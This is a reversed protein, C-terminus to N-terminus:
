FLWGTRVDIRALTDKTSAVACNTSIIWHNLFVFEMGILFDFLFSHTELADLESQLFDGGGTSNNYRNEYGIGFGIYPNFSFGNNSTHFRYKSKMTFEIIIFSEYEIYYVSEGHEIHKDSNIFFDSLQFGPEIQFQDYTIPLHISSAPIGDQPLPILIGGMQAAFRVKKNERIPKNVQLRNNPRTTSTAQTSTPITGMGMLAVTTEGIEINKNVIGLVGATQVDLMRISLRYINGSASWISGTIISSASSMQGIRVAEADAVNGSIQFSQEQLIEAIENRNVVGLHKENVAISTLEQIIYESQRVSNSQINLFLVKSGAPVRQYIYDSIEQIAQEFSVIETTTTQQTILIPTEDHINASLIIFISLLTILIYTKKM